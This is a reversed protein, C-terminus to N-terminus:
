SPSIFNDIVFCHICSINRPRGDVSGISSSSTAPSYAEANNPIGQQPGNPSSPGSPYANVSYSHRHRAVTSEFYGSGTIVGSPQVRLGSDSGQLGRIFVGRYDPINFTTSGNGSGYSTGIRSFLGSYTTRSLTQGSAIVVNPPLTAALINVPVPLMIFMVSGIPYDMNTNALCCVAEMFRGNNFSGDFSSNGTLVQVSNATLTLGLSGTGVSAFFNHTHAPLTGSSSVGSPKTIDSKLYGFEDVVKPLTFTTSGNGPGFNTGIVNFLNSYVSRSVTTGQAPVFSFGSTTVVGSTSVFFYDGISLFVPGSPFIPWNGRRRFYYQEERSWSGKAVITNPDANLGTVGAIKRNGGAM